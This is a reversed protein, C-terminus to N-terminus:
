LFVVQLAPDNLTARISAALKGTITTYSDGYTLTASVGSPQSYIVQDQPNKVLVDAYMVANPPAQGVNGFGSNLIMYATNAM